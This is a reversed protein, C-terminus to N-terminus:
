KLEEKEALRVCLGQDNSARRTGRALRSELRPPVGFAKPQPSPLIHHCKLQFADKDSSIFNDRLLVRAITGIYRNRQTSCIRGLTSGRHGGWFRGNIAVDFGAM